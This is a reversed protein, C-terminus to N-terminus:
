DDKGSDATGAGNSVEPETAPPTEPAERQGWKEQVKKSEAEQMKKLDANIRDIIPTAAQRPKPAELAKDVNNGLNKNMIELNGTLAGLQERKSSTDVGRLQDM